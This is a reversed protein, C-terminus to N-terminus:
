GCYKGNYWMGRKTWDQSYFVGEGHQKGNKWMGVYKKDSYILVGYGSKLNDKYEGEYVKGDKWTFKGSGHMKNNLWTGKYYNGTSSYYEGTGCIENNLFEGIYKSGDPWIFTGQGTRAGQEYNGEFSSGNKWKEKGLGHPLDDKYLGKFEKVGTLEGYGQKLDDKFEGVFVENDIVVRCLGNMKGNAWTGEKICSNHILKGNGHPQDFENVEGEYLGGEYFYSFESLEGLSFQPLTKYFSQLSDSLVSFRCTKRALYGRVLAQVRQDNIGRNTNDTEVYCEHLCPEKLSSHLDELEKRTETCNCVGM